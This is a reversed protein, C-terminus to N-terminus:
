GTLIGSMAYQVAKQVHFAKTDFLRIPTDAQAILMGIETCGLIIGEAGKVALDDAIRLYHKRSDPEIKGLCLAKHIAKHVIQRDDKGPILVRM